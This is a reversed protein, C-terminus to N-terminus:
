KGRRKRVVRTTTVRVLRVAEWADVPIGPWPPCAPWKESIHKRLAYLPRAQRSLIRSLTSESCELERAIDRQEADGIAERLLDAADRKKSKGM